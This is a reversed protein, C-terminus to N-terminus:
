KSWVTQDDGYGGCSGYGSDEEGLDTHRPPSSLHFKGRLGEIAAQVRKIVDHVLRMGGTKDATTLSILFIPSKVLNIKVPLEDTGLSLGTICLISMYNTNCITLYM